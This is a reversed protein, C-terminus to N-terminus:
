GEVGSNGTARQCIKAFQLLTNTRLALSRCLGACSGLGPCQVAFHPDPFHGLVFNYTMRSFKCWDHMGVTAGNPRRQEGDQNLRM